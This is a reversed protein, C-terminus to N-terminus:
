IQFYHCFQSNVWKDACRAHIIKYMDYMIIYIDDKIKKNWTNDKRVIFVCDLPTGQPVDRWGWIHKFVNEICPLSKSKKWMTFIDLIELTWTSYKGNQLSFTKFNLVLKTWILARGRVFVKKACININKCKVSQKVYFHM